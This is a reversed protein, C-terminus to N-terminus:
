FKEDITTIFNKFWKLDDPPIKRPDRDVVLLATIKKLNSIARSTKKGSLAIAVL